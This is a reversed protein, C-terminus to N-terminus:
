ICFDDSAQQSPSPFHVLKETIWICDAGEQQRYLRLLTNHTDDGNHYDSVAMNYPQKSNKKAAMELYYARLQPIEMASHAYLNATRFKARQQKQAKSWKIGSMDPEGYVTTKGSHSLRFILGHIRGRFNMLAPNFKVKAM